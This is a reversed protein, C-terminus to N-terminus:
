HQLLLNIIEIRSINRNKISINNIICSHLLDNITGKDMLDLIDGYEEVEVGYKDDSIYGRRDLIQKEMQKMQCEHISTNWLCRYQFENRNEFLPERKFKPNCTIFHEISCMTLNLQTSCENLISSLEKNRDVGYLDYWSKNITFTSICKDRVVLNNLYKIYDHIPHFYQYILKIIEIPLNDM